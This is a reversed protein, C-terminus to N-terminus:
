RSQLESTHEEILQHDSGTYDEIVTWGKVFGTLEESTMSIDPITEQYWPRRFTSTRWENLINLGLRTTTRLVRKGRSDLYPMVWEPARANFYGDETPQLSFGVNHTWSVGPHPFTAWDM